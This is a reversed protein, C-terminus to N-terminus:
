GTRYATKGYNKPHQVAIYTETSGWVIKRYHLAPMDHGCIDFDSCHATRAPFHDGSQLSGRGLPPLDPYSETGCIVRDPYRVHDTEYRDPLYNYGVFDLPACFAETRDAWVQEAFDTDLNQGPGGSAMMSRLQQITDEDDLGNFLTPMAAAVPRSQDLSRVKEALKRSFEAGGYLGNRETIENGISWCFISPHNRDREIFATLDREWWERFFLHYDNVNKAMNWVDFAEAVALLGLRDCAEMMDRSMPNHACRIGNFGNDKHLKLRRYESDYFSAAGLIGNDHHMCGGRIKLPKKNLLLGNEADVSFTRIGFITQDRDIVGSEDPEGPIKASGDWKGAEGAECLEVEAVYLDPSDLDWLKPNRIFLSCFGRKKKGAQLYIICEGGAIRETGYPRGHGRDEFVSIRACVKRDRDTRNEAEVQVKVQASNEDARVTTLFLPNATLHVAPGVRLDVHRYIGTGSYWRATRMMSNNVFVAIRNREGYKIGETLDCLFPAYGNPHIGMQHGNVSVEANCYAGDLELYVRQGEWQAPIEMNKTYVAMNGKFYGTQMGDPCDPLVPEDINCDHPLNVERAGAPNIKGQMPFYMAPAEKAMSWGRDINIRKM